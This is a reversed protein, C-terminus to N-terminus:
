NTAGSNRFGFVEHLKEGCPGSTVAVNSGSRDFCVVRVLEKGVIGVIFAGPVEEGIRLKTVALKHGDTEVYVSEGVFNRESEPVKAADLYKDANAAVREVTWSELNKLFEPSFDAETVGESDQRSVMVRMSDAMPSPQINAAQERRNESEGMSKGIFQAAPVVVIMGLFMTLWQRSTLSM